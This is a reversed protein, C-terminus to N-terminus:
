LTKVDAPDIIEITSSAVLDAAKERWAAMHPTHFHAKLADMGTWREVFVLKSKDLVDQNLDYSLCGDEKRTEIVCPTAAEIAADTSGPKLELTAVVYIV